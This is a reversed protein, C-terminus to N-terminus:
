PQYLTSGPPNTDLNCEDGYCCIHCELSPEPSQPDFNECLPNGETAQVWLNKCMQESACRRYEQVNTGQQYVDNMAYPKEPPCRFIDALILDMQTCPVPPQAFQDGCVIVQSGTSPRVYVIHDLQKNAGAADQVLLHIVLDLGGNEIASPLQIGTPNAVSDIAVRAGTATYTFQYPATGGAVQTNLAIVAGYGASIPGDLTASLPKSTAAPIVTVTEDVDITNGLSDTVTMRFELDTDATVTPAVFNPNITDAASLPVAAGSTQTWAYNYPGKGGRAVVGNLYVTDGVTVQQSSLATLQLSAAIDNIVLHQTQKVTSVGDTVTVELTVVETHDVAPADIFIVGRIPTNLTLSVSGGTQAWSYQYNGTGGKARAILGANQDGEDVHLIIPPTLRLVTPPATSPAKVVISVQESDTDVADDTVTVTFVLTEDQTVAPLVISPANTDADNITASAGSDQSWNWTYSGDGGTANAVLSLTEGSEGEPTPSMQLRLQQPPIHALSDHVIAKVTATETDNNADTVTLQFTLDTDGNVAPVTIHALEKDARAIPVTPGTSQVWSYQYPPTGGSVSAALPQPAPGEKFEITPSFISLPLVMPVALEYVVLSMTESSMTGASDTVSVTLEYTTDTTVTPVTINVLPQDTVGNLAIEDGPVASQGTISWSWTYSGKGGTPTASLQVNGVSDDVHTTPAPYIVLPAVVKVGIVAMPSHTNSATPANLVSIVVRDTASALGDNFRLEFVLEEDSLATPTTFTPNSTNEGTLAVTTGSIQQWQYIAQAGDGFGSGHLSVTQGGSVQRDKGASAFLTDPNITVSKNQSATGNDDTVTLEFTLPEATSIDPAVVTLNATNDNTLVAATGATQQWSYVVSGEAQPASGHLTFTQQEGVLDPGAIVISSAVDPATRSSHHHCGALFLAWLLIYLPALRM